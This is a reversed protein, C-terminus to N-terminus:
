PLTLGYASLAAPVPQFFTEGGSNCDGSGGSTLGLATSGDYLSGGSDGPEACVTTDILGTVTGEEYNVTANLATVSGSHVGTTSGSRTVNEGVTAEGASTIRTGDNVASPADVGSDYAAWSYDHGPFSADQTQAIHQSNGSDAWWDNTAVGCHGATLMAPNGSRDHVNFGLSCRLGQGWIADGGSIFTRLKGATRKLQAKAGFGDVVGTLKALAAGTVTSDATVLVHGSRPDVRWATGPIRASRDLEGTVAALESARYAVLKPVAGAARVQDAGAADTVTVILRSSAQDYYSGVTRDGLGSTVKASLTTAGRADLPGAAAPGPAALVVGTVLGAAACVVIGRRARRHIRATSM